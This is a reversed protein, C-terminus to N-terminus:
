STSASHVKTFPGFQIWLSLQMMGYGAFLFLGPYVLQRYRWAGVFVLGVLTTTLVPVLSVITIESWQPKRQLIRIIGPLCLLYLLADSIDLIFNHAKGWLFVIKKPLLYIFAVPDKQIWELSLDWAKQDREMEDLGQLQVQWDTPPPSYAGNALPNNGVMFNIGGSSSLIPKGLVQYNRILWPLIILGTTIFMLVTNQLFQRWQCSAGNWILATVIISGPLIAERRVLALLGLLVGATLGLGKTEPKEKWYLLSALLFVWIPIYIAETLIQQTFLLTSPFVAFLIGAVLSGFGDLVQTAGFYFIGASIASLFAQIIFVTQQEKGGLLFIGALFYSYLPPRDALWPEFSSRFGHGSAIGEAYSWFATPDGGALPYPTYFLIFIIRVSLAISGILVAITLSKDLFGTYPHNNGKPLSTSNHVQM